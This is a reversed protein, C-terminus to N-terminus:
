RSLVACFRPSEEQKKKVWKSFYCAFEIQKLTFSVFTDPKVAM